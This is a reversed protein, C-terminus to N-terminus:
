VNSKLEIEELHRGGKLTEVVDDGNELKTVFAGVGGSEYKSFQWAWLNAEFLKDV